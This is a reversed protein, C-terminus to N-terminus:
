GVCNGGDYLGRQKKSSKGKQIESYAIVVKKLWLSGHSLSEPVTVQHRSILRLNASQPTKSPPMGGLLVRRWRAIGQVQIVSM